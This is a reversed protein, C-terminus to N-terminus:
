IGRVTDDLVAEVAAPDLNFTRRDIDAFVPVGGALLLGNVTAMCTHAPVVVRDGRRLGSVQFALHLASTAANVAVAHPAGVLGAVAREFAAVKPGQSRWGSGLVELVARSEEQDTWPRLLPVHDAFLDM